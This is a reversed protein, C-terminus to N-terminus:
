PATMAEARAALRTAPKLVEISDGLIRAAERLWLDKADKQAAEAALEDDLTREDARLGSDQVSAQQGAPAKGAPGKKLKHGAPDAEARLKLREEQLEREKRREAENLSILSQKRRARIEAIDELLYQFDKDKAMRLTHRGQLTPLIAALDSAPTYSAPKIHTWPLANDYSAEGFAEPDSASPLVIDPTVGRLQTTGGNVRFFQAVTMRLEGLKPRDSRALQDFDVMTQVTGKGFSQEGIVIGRGYDQIAAAFIESASASGRNILVGLPGDWQTRKGSCGSIKVNGQSNREQVVPGKGTFLCTLEVAEDLAGGGNNRLDVLVGDVKDKRMEDLLQAVDRSASRFEKSGKRRAEFDQYFAPLSIVGLRRSRTGEKSQLITKKAAQQDLSIKNRVLAILKHKGDPGTDGPLIDLRVVSDKAGRILMVVDDLRMGVVDVLASDNGQGVGVIRDGVKLKGSLAAPGGPVLERITTYDNREQLVAGIGVLSLSMAIDFEASEKPGLYDTHPEISRAYANMFVQFVDESSYRQSRSVSNAYRKDLMERIAKDDKGALKLRLWDNKVRKRWLERIEDEAQAWPAKDREFQLTESRSFDPEQKLLERAYALREAFRRDFLNFIAFPIQLEKDYIASGLRSRAFAFQDVDSQLLFLREPDLSKLYRDFIKESMAEDLPLARYHYRTLVKAAFVAADGQQKLPALTGPTYSDQTAAHSAAAFALFLYLLKHKLMHRFTIM